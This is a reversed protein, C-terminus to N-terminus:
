TKCDKELNWSAEFYFIKKRRVQTYGQSYCSTLLPKHDSCRAVLNEVQIHNYIHSWTPNAVLRDLREKTYTINEYRNSWTYCDRSYGLDHLNCSDM